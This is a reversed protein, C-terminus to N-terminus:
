NKDLLQQFRKQALNKHELLLWAARPGHDKAILTLYIAAFAAKPALDMAKAQDYLAQQLEEPEKWDQDLLKLIQSLYQKQQASLGQAQPSLQKSITFVADKPAYSDLWIQAYKIRDELVDKEFKTLDSGKVATFKQYLDIEPHQIFQAVDRFRPLFHQSPPAKVQSLEFIRVLKQDKGAWYGLAAQDYSDYLDPITLADTDFNVARRIHTRAILFRVLEPPIITTIQDAGIGTGRSSSMKRGGVLFFEHLWGTPPKTNLVQRCIHVGIDRSGGASFHDKGACEVTVNLAKWHAPWDVKWMLKGNEGVPKIKGQHGCGQAWSVLNQQCQYTVHTGDWATVITTGVKGCHPCIVQYPYWNTPKIQRAVRRYIARIKDAKDLCTKVIRDMQGSAYLQHSWIIKPRCGLSNFAQQYKTAYYEGFSAYGKVPSPIKYLPQGMHPQFKKQDLYVPLGDMPDMDNFVYTFDVKFGSTKMAKFLIDHTIIARLSGVHPMGSVTKMDDVRHTLKKGPIKKVLEDVWYM